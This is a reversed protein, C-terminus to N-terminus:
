IHQLNFEPPPSEAHGGAKVNVDFVRSFDELDVEHTKIGTKGTIGAAQVFTYCLM